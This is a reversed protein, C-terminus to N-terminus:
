YACVPMGTRPLYNIDRPLITECAPPGNRVPTAAHFLYENHCSCNGDTQDKNNTVCIRVGAIDPICLMVKGGASPLVHPSDALRLYAYKAMRRVFRQGVPRKPIVGHRGPSRITHVGAGREKRCGRIRRIAVRLETKTAMVSVPGYTIHEVDASLSHNDGHCARIHRSTRIIKAIVDHRM